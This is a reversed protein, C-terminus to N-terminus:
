GPHTEKFADFQGWGKVILAAFENEQATLDKTM